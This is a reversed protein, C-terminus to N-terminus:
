EYKKGLNEINGKIILEDNDIKIINLDKGTINLNFNPMKIIIEKGGIKILEVYKYLHIKDEYLTIFFDKDYLYNQIINKFNM